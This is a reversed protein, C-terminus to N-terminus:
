KLLGKSFIEQGIRQVAVRESKTTRPMDSTRHLFKRVLPGDFDVFIYKSYAITGLFHPFQEWDKQTNNWSFDSPLVSGKKGNPFCELYRQEFEAKTFDGDFSKAVEYLERRVTPLDSVTPTNSM